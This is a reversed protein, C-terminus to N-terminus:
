DESDVVLGVRQMKKSRFVVEVPDLRGSNNKGLSQGPNWGMKQLLKNGKNEEGIPTAKSGV